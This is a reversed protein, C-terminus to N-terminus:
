RHVRLPDFLPLVDIVCQPEAAILWSEHRAAMM